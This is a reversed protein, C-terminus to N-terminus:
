KGLEERLREIIRPLIEQFDGIIGYDAQKFFPAKEDNNIVVINESDDMGSTHYVDGSIGCGIYCKPHVTKGTAGIM